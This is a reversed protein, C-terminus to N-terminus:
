NDFIFIMYIDFCEMQFKHLILYLYCYSLLFIFQSSQGTEHDSICKQLLFDADKPFFGSLPRAENIIEYYEKLVM